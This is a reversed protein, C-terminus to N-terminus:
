RAKLNRWAQLLWWGATIAVMTQFCLVFSRQAGQTKLLWPTVCSGVACAFYCAQEWAASVRGTVHDPVQKAMAQAIMVVMVGIVLGRLCWALMLWSLSHALTLLYYSATLGLLVYGPKLIGHPLRAHLATGLAGTFGMTGQLWANNAAPLHLVTELFAVLMSWTAMGVLCTLADLLLLSRLGKQTLLFRWGESVEQWPSTRAEPERRPGTVTKSALWFNSVLYLAANFFLATKANTLLLVAGILAPAIMRALFMVTGEIAVAELLKEGQLLRRLFAARAPSFLVGVVGLALSVLLYWAPAHPLRMVLLLSLLLAFRASNGILMLSKQEYRDAVWGGFPSMLGYAVIEATFALGTLTVDHTVELILTPLVVVLSNHGLQACIDAWFVRRFAPSHHFLAQIRNWTFM